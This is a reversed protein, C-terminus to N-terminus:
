RNAQCGGMNNLTIAEHKHEDKPLNCIHSTHSNAVKYEHSWCYKDLSITFPIQGRREAHENTLLEKVEKLEKSREELQRTLRANSETLTTV